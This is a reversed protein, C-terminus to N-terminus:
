SVTDANRSNKLMEQLAKVDMLLNTDSIIQQMLPLAEQLEEPALNAVEHLLIEMRSSFRLAYLNNMQVAKEQILPTKLLLKEAIEKSFDLEMSEADQSNGNVIQLLLIESELFYRDMKERDSRSVPQTFDVINQDPYVRAENPLSDIPPASFFFGRGVLIGVLLVAAVEAFRFWPSRNRILTDSLATLFRKFSDWRSEPAFRRKLGAHYQDLIAEPPEPRSRQQLAIDLTSFDDLVQSSRGPETLEKEFAAIESKGMEGHLYRILKEEFSNKQPSNM